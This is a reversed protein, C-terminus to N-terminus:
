PQRFGYLKAPNDVLIRQALVDSGAWTRVLGFLTAEDPPSAVETPHPWDSGWVLRDPAIRVLQSAIATADRYRPPGEQTNLYAGSLKVWTRGQELWKALLAFAPHKTGAPLPMRGMHDIVRVCPLREILQAHEVLQDGLMHIQAHWGFAHIRNALPEIMDPTTVATRPDHQTFRLGRVGGAHLSELTKFDADPHLVGIGRANEIGLQAVADVTVRNDTHYAAPQVVITRTTGNLAQVKRYDAVTANSMGRLGPKSMPFRPDYIHIHSDCSHM